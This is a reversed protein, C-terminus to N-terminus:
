SEPSASAPSSGVVDHGVDLALREPGARARPRSGSSVGKPDRPLHRIREVVGVPAADDVAVDLGLVHQELSPCARTASKPMARASVAAPSSSSVAVPERRRCARRVHARLLRDALRPQVASAVDVAQRAHQELHQAACGGNVPAPAHPMSARRSYRAAAGRQSAQGSTRSASSAASSRAAERSAASRNGVASANARASPPWPGAGARGRRSSASWEAGAPRGDTATSGKTLILGSGSFSYKLSPMVSSIMLARARTRAQPDRGPGRREGELALADVGPLDALPELHVGQEFAAHALGAVPDPDRGLQDVHGVAVLEPRLPVLPGQRVHEGHLVLQRARDRSRQGPRHDGSEVGGAVVPLRSAYM